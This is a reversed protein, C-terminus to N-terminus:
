NAIQPKHVAAAHYEVAKPDKKDYWQKCVGCEQVYERSEPEGIKTAHIVVGDAEGCTACGALRGHAQLTLIVSAVERLTNKIMPEAHPDNFSAARAYACEKDFGKAILVGTVCSQIVSNPVYVRLQDAMTPVGRETITATKTFNSRTTKTGEGNAPVFLVSIALSAVLLIFFILAGVM